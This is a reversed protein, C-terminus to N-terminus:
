CISNIYRDIKYIWYPGHQQNLLKSLQKHDILEISPNNKAFKIAEKSFLSSTVLVGKTAKMNTVVGLLSRIDEVSITSKYNKCQIVLKEKLTTGEKEANVDIGGDYSDKTLTATYGLNRYVLLVLKEFDKPTLNLFIEKPHEKDVFRASIITTCDSIGELLDDPLFQCNALYFANIANIAKDPFHPLLDLIWTLGEWVNDKHSKIKNLRYFYETDQLTHKGSKSQEELSVNLDEDSSIQNYFEKNSIDKGYTGSKPLFRRLINRIEKESFSDIINIFDELHKDTPFKLIPYYLQEALPDEIAKLFENLPMKTTDVIKDLFIKHM